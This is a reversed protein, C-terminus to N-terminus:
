EHFPHRLEAKEATQDKCLKTACESKWNGRNKSNYVIKGVTNGAEAIKM